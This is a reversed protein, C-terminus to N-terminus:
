WPHLVIFVGGPQFFHYGKLIETKTYQCDTMNVVFIDMTNLEPDMYLRMVQFIEMNNPMSRLKVHRTVHSEHDFVPFRCTSKETGNGVWREMLADVKYAPDESLKFSIKTPHNTSLLFFDELENENDARMTELYNENDEKYPTLRSELDYHLLTLNIANSVSSTLLLIVLPLM